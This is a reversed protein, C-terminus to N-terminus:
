SLNLIKPESFLVSVRAQDAVAEARPAISFKRSASSCQFKEIVIERASRPAISFKRSASSCQFSLLNVVPDHPNKMSFKRSASSCQFSPPPRRAPAAATNLIKPESFLVSVASPPNLSTSPPTLQSNEARQLASFGRRRMYWVAAGVSQSNEARQLASFRVQEWVPLMLKYM